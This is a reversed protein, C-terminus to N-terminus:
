APRDAHLISTERYNPIERLRFVACILLGQVVVLITAPLWFDPATRPSAWGGFESQVCPEFDIYSLLAADLFGCCVLAM